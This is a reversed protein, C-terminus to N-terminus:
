SAPMESGRAVYNEVFTRIYPANIEIGLEDARDFVAKSAINKRLAHTILGLAASRQGMLCHIYVPTAAGRIATRYEDVDKYNLKNLAMPVHIYNLGADACIKREEEPKLLQHYEGKASLNVVTAFGAKVLDQIGKEDLQPGIVFDKSLEIPTSLLM